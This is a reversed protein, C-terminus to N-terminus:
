ENANRCPPHMSDCTRGFAAKACGISVSSHRDVTKQAEMIQKEKLLLARLKERKTEMSKDSIALFATGSGLRLELEADLLKKFVATEKRNKPLFEIHEPDDEKDATKYSLSIKSKSVIDKIRKSGNDESEAHYDSLVKNFGTLAESDTMSNCFCRMVDLRQCDACRDYEMSFEAISAKDVECCHCFLDKSFSGGGLGTVKWFSSMDQPSVVLFNTLEPLGLEPIAKIRLGNNFRDFLKCFCDLYLDKCDKGFVMQVPYCLNASQWKFGAEDMFVYEMGTWVDKARLDVIKIGATVHSLADTLVAGDLTYAILVPAHGLLAATSTAFFSLGHAELILRMLIDLDFWYSPGHETTEVNIKLGLSDAYGELKTAADRVKTKEPILGEERFGLEEVFKRLANLCRYNLGGAEELDIARQFKWPVFVHKKLYTECLKMFPKHFHEKQHVVLKSFADVMANAKTKM